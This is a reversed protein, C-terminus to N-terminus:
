VQGESDSVRAPQVLQSLKFITLLCRYIYVQFM